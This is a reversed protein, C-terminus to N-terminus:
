LFNALQLTKLKSRNQKNELSYNSENESITLFLWFKMDYLLNLKSHKKKHKKFEWAIKFNLDVV